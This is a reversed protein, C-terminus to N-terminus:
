ISCTSADPSGPVIIADFSSKPSLFRATVVTVLRTVLLQQQRSRATTADLRGSQRGIARNRFCIAGGPSPPAYSLPFPRVSTLSDDDDDDQIVPV